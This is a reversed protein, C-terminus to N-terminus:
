EGQLSKGSNLELARSAGAGNHEGLTCTACSGNHEGLTRAACSGDHESGYYEESRRRQGFGDHGFGCCSVV